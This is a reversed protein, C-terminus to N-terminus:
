TSKPQRATNQKPSSQRALYPKTLEVCSHVFLKPKYITLLNMLSDYLVHSSFSHGVNRGLM